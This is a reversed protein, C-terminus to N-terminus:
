ESEGESPAPDAPGVRDLRDAHERDLAAENFNQGLLRIREVLSRGDRPVRWLDLESGAEILEQANRLERDDRGEMEVEAGLGKAVADRVDGPTLFFDTSVRLTVTMARKETM